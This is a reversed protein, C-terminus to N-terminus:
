ENDGFDNRERTAVLASAEDVATVIVIKGARDVEVRVVTMGITTVAKIARTVDQQRFTLPGRAMPRRV